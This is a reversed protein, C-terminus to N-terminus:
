ESSRESQSRNGRRCLRHRHWRRCRDYHRKHVAVAAMREIVREDYYALRMSDWDGAVKEFFTQVDRANM